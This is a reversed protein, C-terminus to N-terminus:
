WIRKVDAISSLMAIVIYFGIVSNTYQVGSASASCAYEIRM